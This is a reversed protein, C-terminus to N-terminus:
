AAPSLFEGRAYIKLFLKSFLDHIFMNDFIEAFLPLIFSFQHRPHTFVDKLQERVIVVGWTNTQLFLGMCFLGIEYPIVMQEFFFWFTAM